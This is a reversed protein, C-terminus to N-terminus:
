ERESWAAPGALLLIAEAIVVQETDKNSDLAEILPGLLSTTDDEPALRRLARAAQVRLSSIALQKILVPRASPARLDALAVAAFANNRDDTLLQELEPV